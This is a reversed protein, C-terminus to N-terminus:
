LQIWQQTKRDFYPIKDYCTGKKYIIRNITGPNIEPFSDYVEQLPCMTSYKQRIQYATEYSCIMRKKSISDTVVSSSLANKRIPYDLKSNYWNHGTNINTVTANSVDYQAAIERLTKDNKKLEAIIENVQEQTLKAQSHHEGSLGVSDQGGSAINYGYRKDNSHYYKTWYKERSDLVERNCREVIELHTNEVGYKKIALHIPLQSDRGNDKKASCIHEKFRRLIDVARGIYIRDTGIFFIKYIGCIKERM